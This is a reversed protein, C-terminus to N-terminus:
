PCRKKIKKATLDYSLDLLWKIKQSDASGDLAASIWNTKNMHYAPFFGAESRLSGSLIPSCKLNIIDIIGEGSLGLKNKQVAIVVAFWKRNNAHRFVATDPYQAFPYEAHVGYAESIYNIVEARNM